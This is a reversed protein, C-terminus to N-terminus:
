VKSGCANDNGACTSGPEKVDKHGNGAVQRKPVGNSAIHDSHTRKRRWCGMFIALLGASAGDIDEVIPLAAMTMRTMNEYGRWTWGHLAEISATSM